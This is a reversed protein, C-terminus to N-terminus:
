DFGHYLAYSVYMSCNYSRVGDAARRDTQDRTGWLTHQQKDGRSYRKRELDTHLANNRALVTGMQIYIYYIYQM